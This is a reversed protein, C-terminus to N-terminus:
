KGNKEKTVIVQSNALNKDINKLIALIDILAVLIEYDHIKTKQYEGRGQIIFDDDEM